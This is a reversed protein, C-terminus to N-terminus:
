VTFVYFSALIQLAHNLRCLRLAQFAWSLGQSFRSWVKSSVFGAVSSLLSLILAWAQKQPHSIRVTLLQPPKAGSCVRCFLCVQAFCTHFLLLDSSGVEVPPLTKCESEVAVMWLLHSLVSTLSLEGKPILLEGGFKDLSWSTQEWCLGTIQTNHIATHILTEAGQICTQFWTLFSCHFM